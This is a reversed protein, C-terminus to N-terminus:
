NLKILKKYYDTSFDVGKQALIAYLIREYGWGVCGSFTLNPKQPTINFRNYFVKGHHNFSALSITKKSYPLLAQIEYKSESLLQAKKKIENNDGFFPDTATLVEYSLDLIKDFIKLTEDLIETKKQYCYEEEGFFVIERMTFNILRSFDNLEGEEKRTCTGLATISYNKDISKNKLASFYHYCVTPSCMGKYEAHPCKEKQTNDKYPEIMLAQNKFSNLYESRKTNEWSLISPVFVSEAGVEKAINCILKDVKDLIDALVGKLVFLGNGVQIALNNESLFKMPDKYYYIEGKHIKKITSKVNNKLLTM